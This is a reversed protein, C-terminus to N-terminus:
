EYEMLGHQKVLDSFEKSAILNKLNEVMTDIVHQPIEPIGTEEARKKNREYLDLKPLYFGIFRIDALDQFQKIFVNLYKVKCNTQDIIVDRGSGLAERVGSMIMNTVVSEGLGDIIPLGCLMQRLDDRNFRLSRPNEKIYKKSWTSKGSCPAGILLILKPKSM